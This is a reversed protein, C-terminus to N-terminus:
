ELNVDQQISKEAATSSHGLFVCYYLKHLQPCLCVMGTLGFKESKATLIGNGVNITQTQASFAPCQLLM